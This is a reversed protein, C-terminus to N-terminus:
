KCVLKGGKDAQCMRWTCVQYHLQAGTYTAVWDPGCVFQLTPKAAPQAPQTAVAFMFAIATFM